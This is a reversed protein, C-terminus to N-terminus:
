SPGVLMELAVCLVCLLVHIHMSMHYVLLVAETEKHWVSVASQPIQFVSTSMDELLQYGLDLFGLLELRQLLDSTTSGHCSVTISISYVCFM